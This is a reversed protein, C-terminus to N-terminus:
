REQIIKLMEVDCQDQKRDAAMKMEILNQVSVVPIKEDDLEILVANHKLTNYSIPSFLVIDIECIPSGDCYLNYAKMGKEQIWSNRTTEDALNMPDNPIKSRFGWYNRVTM